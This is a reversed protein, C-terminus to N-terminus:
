FAALTCASVPERVTLRAHWRVGHRTPLRLSHRGAPLSAFPQEPFAGAFSRLRLEVPAVGSSEILLGSGRVGVDFTTGAASLVVRVCGGQTRAEGKEIAELIPPISEAARGGPAASTGAAGLLVIDAAQREAEGARAIEEPSSAPSSGYDRVAAFYKGATIDPARVPDPAFDSRTGPGALELAGLEAQV